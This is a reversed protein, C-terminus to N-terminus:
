QLNVIVAIFAQKGDSGQSGGWGMAREGKLRSTLACFLPLTQVMVKIMELPCLSCRQAFIFSAELYSNLIQPCGARAAAMELDRLVEVKVSSELEKEPFAAPCKHGTPIGACEKWFVTKIFLL